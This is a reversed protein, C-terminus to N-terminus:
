DSARGSPGGGRKQVRKKAEDERESLQEFQKYAATIIEDLATIAHKSLKPDARLYTLIQNLGGAPKERHIEQDLV